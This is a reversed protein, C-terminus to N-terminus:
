EDADIPPVSFRSGRGRLEMLPVDLPLPCGWGSDVNNRSFSDPLVLSPLLTPVGNTRRSVKPDPIGVGLANGLLCLAPRLILEPIPSLPSM